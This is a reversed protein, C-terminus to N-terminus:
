ARGIVLHREGQLYSNDLKILKDKHFLNTKLEEEIKQKTGKYFVYRTSSDRMTRTLRVVHEISSLARCTIVNVKNSLEGANQHCIFIDTLALEKLAHNLFKIKKIKSEVLYIPSLGLISLVMGPFGAGTGVDAISSGSPFYSFGLACDLVHKYIIEELNNTGLINTHSNYDQILKLYLKIKEQRDSSIPIKKKTLEAFLNDLASM